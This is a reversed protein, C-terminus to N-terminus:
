GGGELRRTRERAEAGADPAGLVIGPPLEVHLERAHDMAVAVGRPSCALVHGGRSGSATPSTCTTARPGQDGRAYAPFRFGVVTGEVDHLDFVHQRHAIETLSPYPPTFRPVSRARVVDFRGDIRLACDACRAATAIWSLPMPAHHDLPGALTCRATPAFFTVVAFPTRAEPRDM